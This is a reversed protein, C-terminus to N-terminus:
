NLIAMQVSLVGVNVPRVLVDVSYDILSKVQEGIPLGHGSSALEAKHITFRGQDKLCSVTQIKAPGGRFIHQSESRRVASESKGV